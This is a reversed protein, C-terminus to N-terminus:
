QIRKAHLYVNAARVAAKLVRHSVHSVQHIKRSPKQKGWGQSLISRGRTPLRAQPLLVKVCLERLFTGLKAVAEERNPRQYPRVSTFRQGFLEAGDHVSTLRQEVGESWRSRLLM